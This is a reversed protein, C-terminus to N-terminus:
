SDTTPIQSWTLKVRPLLSFITVTQFVTLKRASLLSISLPDLVLQVEISFHAHEKEQMYSALTFGLAIRTSIWTAPINIRGFSSIWSKHILKLEVLASTHIGIEPFFFHVYINAPPDNHLSMCVYKCTSYLNLLKHRIKSRPKAM